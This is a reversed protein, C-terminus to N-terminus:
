YEIGFDVHSNADHKGLLDKDGGGVKIFINDNKAVVGADVGMTGSKIGYNVGAYLEVQQKKAEDNFVTYHESVAIAPNKFALDTSVTGIVANRGDIAVGGAFVSTDNLIQYPNNLDVTTSVGGIGVVTTGGLKTADTTAKLGVTVNDVTGAIPNGGVAAYATVQAPGKEAQWLGTQASIHANTIQADDNVGMGASVQYNGPKTAFTKVTIPTPDEELKKDVAKAVSEGFAMERPKPVFGSQAAIEIARASIHQAMANEAQKPDVGLLPAYMKAWEASYQNILAAREQPPISAFNTSVRTDEAKFDKSRSFYSDKLFQENNMLATTM